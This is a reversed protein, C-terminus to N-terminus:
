DANEIKTRFGLIKKPINKETLETKLHPLETLGDIIELDFDVKDSEALWKINSLNASNRSPSGCIGTNKKKRIM